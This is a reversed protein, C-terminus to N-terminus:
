VPSSPTILMDYRSLGGTNVQAHFEATDGPKPPPPCEESNQTRTYPITRWHSNTVRCLRRPVPRSILGAYFRVRASARGKSSANGGKRRNDQWNIQKVELRNRDEHVNNGM